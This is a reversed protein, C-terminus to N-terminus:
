TAMGDAQGQRSLHMLEQISRSQSCSEETLHKADYKQPAKELKAKNVEDKDRYKQRGPKHFERAEQRQVETATSVISLDDKLKSKSKRRHKRREKDRSSRKPKDGTVPKKAEDEGSEEDDDDSDSESASQMIGHLMNAKVDEVSEDEEASFQSNSRNSKEFKNLRVAM